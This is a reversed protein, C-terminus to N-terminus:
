WKGLSQICGVLAEPTLPKTLLRDAGMTEALKLINMNHRLGGGSMAIIKVNKGQARIESITELGEKYPMLMDVIVLDPAHKSFQKIGDVGNEAELVTCEIRKLINRCSLRILEDDDIILIKM